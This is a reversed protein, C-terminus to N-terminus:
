GRTARAVTSEWWFRQGDVRGDHVPASGNHVRQRWAGATVGTVTEIMDLTVKAGSGDHRVFDFPEGAQRAARHRAARAKGVHACETSCFKRRPELLAGCVPCTRTRPRGVSKRALFARSGETREARGAATISDRNTADRRAVFRGWEPTGVRARSHEATHQVLRDCMLPESMALGHARKFEDGTMSHAHKLHSGLAQFRRGCELCVVFDDGRPLHGVSADADWERVLPRGARKRSDHLSCLGNAVVPRGCGTVKCM